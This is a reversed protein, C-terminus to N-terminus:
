PERVTIGPVRNFVTSDCSYILNVGAALATAAIAMDYVEPGRPKVIPALAQLRQMFEGSPEIVTFVSALAAVEDWAEKLSRPVAVRKTTILSVYELLIQPTVGGQLAGDEVQDRLSRCAEHQPATADSAYILVNTDFIASVSNPTAM